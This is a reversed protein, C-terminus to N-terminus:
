VHSYFLKKPYYICVSRDHMMDSDSLSLYKRVLAKRIRYKAAKKKTNLKLM